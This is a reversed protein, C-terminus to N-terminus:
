ALDAAIRASSPAAHAYNFTGDTLLETGAQLLGGWAARALSAGLSVRRVGLANLDALSMAEQGPLGMIVNVPRDVARVVTAIEAATKLGPAFLVDAGAEQYAQLRRITDHLDPRGVLYNEARATLVFPHPLARAAAVAARIRDAAQAIEYLPHDALGTSDEISGGVVGAQAALSICEAVAEPSRGFGDELDASVPLHTVSALEQLHQLMQARGVQKDITGRSFAYGASTSALAAFGMHELLRASGQDWPNPIIFAQPAQHLAVFAHAKDALTPM